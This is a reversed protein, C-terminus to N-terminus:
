VYHKRAWLYDKQIEKSWPDYKGHFFVIKANPPLDKNPRKSITNRFSYVGDAETWKKEGGGLAVTIWAQDTGILKRDKITVLSKVPDFTKWVKERTGATMLFMSGNYQITKTTDGWIVFDETRKVLPLINDVIVCDLDLSLFRKGIIKEM